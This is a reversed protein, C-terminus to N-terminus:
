SNIFYKIYEGRWRHYAAHSACLVGGIGRTKSPSLLDEEKHSRFVKHAELSVKGVSNLHM